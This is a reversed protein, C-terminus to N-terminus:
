IRYRLMAGFGGLSLFREGAEHDSSIIAVRGAQKEAADMLWESERLREESIILVEVAGLKVADSVERKGYTALGEKHVEELFREVIGAERAIRTDRLIRNAANRVLETVGSRGTANTHELVCKRALGPDRKKIHALLNEREFGPGALVITGAEPKGKLYGLIDNRFKEVHSEDEAKDPEMHALHGLGSEKLVAFDAEDRDLVCIMLLSKKHRAKELRDLQHQKWQEKRITLSDGVGISISHYSGIRVRDEPGAIVPGRLRLAHSDPHFEAKELGITLVMPIRDGERIESGRKITTKRMTRATIGDGEGLVKDLHWLDDMTETKVRVIGNRLDRKQIQM